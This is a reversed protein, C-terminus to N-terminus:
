VSCRSSKTQIQTIADYFYLHTTSAIGPTRSAGTVLLKIKAKIHEKTPKEETKHRLFQRNLLSCIIIIAFFPNM